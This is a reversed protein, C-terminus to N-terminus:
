APDSSSRLYDGGSAQWAALEAARLRALTERRGSRLSQRPVIPVNVRHPRQAGAATLQMFLPMRDPQPKM